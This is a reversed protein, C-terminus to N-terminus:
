VAYCENGDKIVICLHLPLDGLTQFLSNCTKAHLLGTPWLFIYFCSSFFFTGKRGQRWIMRTKFIQQNAYNRCEWVLIHISFSSQECHMCHSYNNNNKRGKYLLFWTLSLQTPKIALEGKKSTLYIINTFSTYLGGVLSGYIRSLEESAKAIEEQLKFTTDQNNVVALANEEAVTYRDGVLFLPSFIDSIPSCLGFLPSIGSLLCRYM